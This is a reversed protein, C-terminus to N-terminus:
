RRERVERYIEKLMEYNKEPEYLKEYVAKTNWTKITEFRELAQKLERANGTAFCLGTAGPLVMDGVNGLDSALVPTGVAYSELIVM